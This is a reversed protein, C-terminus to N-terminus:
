ARSLHTATLKDGLFATDTLVGVRVGGPPQLRYPAGGLSASFNISLPCLGAEKPPSEVLTVQSPIPTEM